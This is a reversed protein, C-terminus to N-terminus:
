VAPSIKIRSCEWLKQWFSTTYHLWNRSSLLAHKEWPYRFLPSTHANMSRWSEAACAQWYKCKYCHNDYPGKPNLYAIRWIKYSGSDIRSMLVSWTIMIFQRITNRWNNLPIGQGHEGGSDWINWNELGKEVEQKGLYTTKVNGYAQWMDRVSVM